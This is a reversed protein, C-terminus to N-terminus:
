ESGPVEDHWYYASFKGVQRYATKTRETLVHIKKIPMDIRNKHQTIVDYSGGCPHLDFHGHALNNREHGIERLEKTLTQSALEPFRLSLLDLTLVKREYRAGKISSIIDERGAKKLALVIMDSIEAELRNIAVLFQGLAAEYEKQLNADVNPDTALDDGADDDAPM